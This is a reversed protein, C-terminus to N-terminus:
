YVTDTFMREAGIPILINRPTSLCEDMAMQYKVARGDQIVPDLSQLACRNM